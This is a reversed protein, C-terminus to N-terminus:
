RMVISPLHMQSPLPSIQCGALVEVAGTCPLRITMSQLENPRLVPDSIDEVHPEIGLLVVLANAFSFLHIMCLLLVKDALVLIKDALSPSLAPALSLLPRTELKFSHAQSVTFTSTERTTMSVMSSTTALSTAIPELTMLAPLYGCLHRPTSSIAQRYTLIELTAMPTPSTRM